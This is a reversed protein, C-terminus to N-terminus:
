GSDTPTPAPGMPRLARPASRAAPLVVGLRRVLAAIVDRVVGDDGTALVPRTAGAHEGESITIYFRNAM